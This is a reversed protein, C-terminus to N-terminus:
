SYFASALINVNKISVTPKEKNQLLRGHKTRIQFHEKQNLLLRKQGNEM